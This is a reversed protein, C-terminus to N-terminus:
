FNVSAVPSWVLVSDLAKASLDALATSKEPAVKRHWSLTEHRRSLAAEEDDGSTGQQVGALASIMVGAVAGIAAGYFINKTHKGSEEYFPLTSVGLIAGSVTAMSITLAADGISAASSAKPSVLLLTLLSFLIWIRKV